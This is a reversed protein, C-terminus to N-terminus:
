LKDWIDDEKNGWLKKATKESHKVMYDFEKSFRKSAKSSKEILLRDGKRIVILEEGSKIGMEKRIDSPIAIQGKESVRITKFKIEDEPMDITLIKKSIFIRFTALMLLDTLVV